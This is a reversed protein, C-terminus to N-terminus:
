RTCRSGAQDLKGPEVYVQLLAKRGSRTTFTDELLDLKAAVMAFLYSPKPFPDEWRAWHRGGDEEGSAVLNGNALLRPFRDKAAHLTVAYKAMVDPRDIFYTICRFGQAECQTFLGDKSAYFGELRTNKWPDFRVVTELTFAEPVEAIRLQEDDVAYEGKGLARGDIEVSVLELHRGDLV